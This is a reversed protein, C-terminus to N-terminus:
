KQLESIMCNSFHVLREGTDGDNVNKCVEFAREAVERPNQAEPKFFPVTVNTNFDVVTETVFEGNKFLGEEKFYCRALSRTVPGDVIHHNEDMVKEMDDKEIGLEKVCHIIHENQFQKPLPAAHLIVPLLALCWIPIGM